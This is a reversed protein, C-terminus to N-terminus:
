GFNDSDFGLFEIDMGFINGSPVVGILYLLFFPASFSGERKHLFFEDLKDIALIIGWFLFYSDPSFFYHFFQLFWHPIFEVIRLAPKVTELSPVEASFLSYSCLFLFLDEVLYSKRIYPISSHHFRSLYISWHIILM